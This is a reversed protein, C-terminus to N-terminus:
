ESRDGRAKSTAANFVEDYWYREEKDFFWPDTQLEAWPSLRAKPLAYREFLDIMEVFSREDASRSVIVCIGSSGRTVDSVVAVKRLGIYFHAEDACLFVM